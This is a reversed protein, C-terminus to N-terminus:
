QKTRPEKRADLLRQCADQWQFALKMAEPLAFGTHEEGITLVVHDLLADVGVSVPKAESATM